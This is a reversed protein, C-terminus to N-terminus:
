FPRFDDIANRKGLSKLNSILQEGIERERGVDEGYLEYGNPTKRELFVLIQIDYPRQDGLIRFQAYLRDRTVLPNFNEEQGKKAFYQTIFERGNKSVTRFKGNTVMSIASRMDELSNKQEALLLCKTPTQCGTLVTIIVMLFGAAVSLKIM